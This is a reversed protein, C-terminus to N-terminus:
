NLIGNVVSCFLLASLRHVLRVGNVFFSRSPVNIFFINGSFVHMMHM